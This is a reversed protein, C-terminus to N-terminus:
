IASCAADEPHEVCYARRTAEPKRPRGLVTWLALGVVLALLMSGIAIWGSTSMTSPAAAQANNTAVVNRAGQTGRPAVISDRTDRAVGASGGSTAQIPHGLVQEIQALSPAASGGSGSQIPHGLVQEVQALSPSRAAQVAPVLVLFALLLLGSLGLVRQLTLTKNM